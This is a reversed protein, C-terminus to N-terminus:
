SKSLYDVLDKNARECFLFARQRRALRGKEVVEDLPPLLGLNAKMPQFDAPSAHTIYHCLAGLMTTKPLVWLPESNLYRAANIGALLGTAINGIYGEVGTIQGAFFLNDRYLTQLSPRLLSPSYLFTNRHMQGFRAFEATDLGPIMRFIRKQELFTMNTQLGVLNYLDGALNDQRLQVVAYPSKGNRPDILGSPRMPGYALADHGRKALIEIPLCGEFFKQVGAKVGGELDLEFERLPIRGAGILTDVFADYEDRTMPCNIYDGEDCEGREYRSARFAVQMNISQRIVVPAIADFFFLHDQGNNEQLAASLSPSTLPGSGIITLGSPIKKVEERIVRIHPHNELTQTVLRSFGIRDVALADGAPLATKEACQMLFSGLTRIENKLLGQARDPLDSGLSNSCVLEGLDGSVHAGTQVKPRMEYLWVELGRSAAQFAAESGALGGGVVILDPNKSIM